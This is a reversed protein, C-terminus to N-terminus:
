SSTPVCSQSASDYVSGKACSMAQRQTDHGCGAAALSPLALLALAALGFTINM